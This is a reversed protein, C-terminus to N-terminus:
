PKRVVVIFWRDPRNESSILEFGARVLEKTVTEPSVGHQDGTDRDAPSTAEQGRPQFDIVALRGGPKLSELLSHNMAPPDAFHHYVNRIFIGDCCEEPLNTYSSDGQVIAVNAVGADDLVAKLKALTEAGLDTAYVRGSPGVHRALPITLLADPGAGIDALVSGPRVQLVEVLRAADADDDQTAASAAFFLLVLVVPLTQRQPRM